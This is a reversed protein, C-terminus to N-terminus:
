GSANSTTCDHNGYELYEEVEPRALAHGQRVGEHNGGAQGPEHDVVPLSMRQFILHQDVILQHTSKEGDQEHTGGNSDHEIDYKWLDDLRDEECDKERQQAQADQSLGELQEPGLALGISFRFVLYRYLGCVVDLVVVQDVVGNPVVLVDVVGAVWHDVICLGKWLDLPSTCRVVFLEGASALVRALSGPDLVVFWFILLKFDIQLSVLRM